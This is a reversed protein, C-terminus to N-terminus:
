IGYHKHPDRIKKLAVWWLEWVWFVLIRRRTERLEAEWLSWLFQTWKWWAKQVRREEFTEPEQQCWALFEDCGRSRSCTSFWPSCPSCGLQARTLSPQGETKNSSDGLIYTMQTRLIYMHKEFIDKKQPAGNFVQIYYGIHLQLLYMTVLQQHFTM